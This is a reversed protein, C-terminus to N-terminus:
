LRGFAVKNYLSTRRGSIFEGWDISSENTLVVSAKIFVWEFMMEELFVEQRTSDDNGKHTEKMACIVYFWLMHVISAPAGGGQNVVIYVSSLIIQVEFTHMLCKKLLCIKCNNEKSKQREWELLEELCAIWKLIGLSHFLCANLKKTKNIWSLFQLRLHICRYMHM